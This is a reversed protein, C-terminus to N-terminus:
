NSDNVAIVEGWESIPFKEVGNSLWFPSEFSLGPWYFFGLILPYSATGTCLLLREVLFVRGSPLMGELM